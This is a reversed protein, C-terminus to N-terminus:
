DDNEDDEDDNFTGIVNLYRRQNLVESITEGGTGVVRATKPSYQGSRYGHPVFGKVQYFLGFVHEAGRASITMPNERDEEENIPGSWELEVLEEPKLPLNVEVDVSFNDGVQVDVDQRMSKDFEAPTFCIVSAVFSDLPIQLSALVATKVLSKRGDDDRNEFGNWIVLLSAKGMPLPIYHSAAGPLSRSVADLIPKQYKGLSDFKVTQEYRFSM